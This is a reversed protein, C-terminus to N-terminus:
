GAATREPRRRHYPRVGPLPTHRYSHKPTPEPRGPLLEKVIVVGHLRDQTADLDSIFGGVYSPPQTATVAGNPGELSVNIGSNRHAELYRRTLPIYYIEKTVQGYKVNFSEDPGRFGEITHGDSDLVHDASLWGNVSLYFVVLYLGTQGPSIEAKLFLTRVPGVLPQVTMQRGTVITTGANSDYTVGGSETTSCASLAIAFVAGIGAFSSWNM